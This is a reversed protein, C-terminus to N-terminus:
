LEFWVGLWFVLGWLEDFDFLLGGVFLVIDCVLELGFYECGDLVLSEVIFMLIGDDFVVIEFEGDIEVVWWKLYCLIVCWVDDVFFEGCM